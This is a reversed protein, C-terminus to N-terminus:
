RAGQMLIVVAVAVAMAWLLSADGELLDRVARLWSEIRTVFPAVLEWGLIAPWRL